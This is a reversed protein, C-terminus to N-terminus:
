NPPSAPPVTAAPTATTPAAVSQPNGAAGAQIDKVTQPHIQKEIAQQDQKQQTVSQPTGAAATASATLERNNAVDFKFTQDADNTYIYTKVNMTRFRALRNEDNIAAHFRMLSARESHITLVDGDFKAYGAVGVKAFEAKVAQLYFRRAVDSSLQGPCTGSLAQGNVQWTWPEGQHQNCYKEVGKKVQHRLILDSIGNGVNAWAEANQRDREAQIAEQRRQEAGVDTSTCNTSTSIRGDGSTGDTSCHTEVQALSHGTLLVALFMLMSFRSKMSEEMRSEVVADSLPRIVSTMESKKTLPLDLSGSPIFGNGRYGQGALIGLGCEFWV